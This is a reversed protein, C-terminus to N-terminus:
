KMCTAGLRKALSAPTELRPEVEPLYGAVQLAGAVLGSCVYEHPLSVVVAIRPLLAAVGACIFGIFSYSRGVRENLWRITQQYDHETVPLVKMAAAKEIQAKAEDGDLRRIGTGIAEYFSGNLAIAVHSFPSRTVRRVLRSIFGRNSYWLVVITRM